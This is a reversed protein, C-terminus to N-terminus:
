QIRVVKRVEVVQTGVEVIEDRKDRLVRSTVEPNPQAQGNVYTTTTTEEVRGTIGSQIVRREGKPLNPNEHTITQYPIEKVTVQSDQRVEQTGVEVIEDRKDRLV